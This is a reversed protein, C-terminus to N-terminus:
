VGLQGYDNEWNLKAERSWEVGEFGGDGDGEGRWVGAAKWVGVEREREM